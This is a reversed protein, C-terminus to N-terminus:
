YDSILAHNDEYKYPTIYISPNDIRLETFSVEPEPNNIDPKNLVVDIIINIKLNDVICTQIYYIKYQTDIEYGSMNSTTKFILNYQNGSYYQILSNIYNNIFSLNNIDPTFNTIPQLADNFSKIPNVEKVRELINNIAKLKQLDTITINKDFKVQEPIETDEVDPPFMPFPIRKETLLKSSYADNYLNLNASIDFKESKVVLFLIIVVVILIILYKM